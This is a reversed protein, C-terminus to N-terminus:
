KSINEILRLYDKVDPKKLRYHIFKGSKIGEILNADELKQLHHSITSQKLNLAISFECICMEDKELLLQFILLRNKESLAKNIKIFKHFNHDLALKEKLQRLEEVYKNIDTTDQKCEMLIKLQNYEINEPM